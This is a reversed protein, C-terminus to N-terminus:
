ERERRSIRGLAHASPHSPLAQEPSGVAIASIRMLAAAAAPGTGFRLLATALKGTAVLGLVDDQELKHPHIGTERLIGELMAGANVVPVVLSLENAIQNFLANGEVAGVLGTLKRRRRGKRRASVLEVVRVFLRARDVPRVFVADLSEQYASVEHSELIGVRAPAPDLDEVAWLAARADQHVFDVIVVLPAKGGRDFYSRLAVLSPAVVVAFGRRAFLGEIKLSDAIEALVAVCPRELAEPAVDYSTTSSSDRRTM